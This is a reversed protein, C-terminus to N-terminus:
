GGLCGPLGSCPGGHFVEKGSMWFGNAFGIPLM